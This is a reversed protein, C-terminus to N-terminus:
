KGSQMTEPWALGIPIAMVQAPVPVLGHGLHAQAGGELTGGTPGVTADHRGHEVGDGGLAEAQGRFRGAQLRGVQEFRGLRGASPLAQNPDESVV